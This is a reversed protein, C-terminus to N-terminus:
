GIALNEREARQAGAPYPVAFSEFPNRSQSARLGQRQASALEFDLCVVNAFGYAAFERMESDPLAYKMELVCSVSRKESHFIFEHSIAPGRPGCMKLVAVKLASLDPADRLTKLCHEWYRSRPVSSDEFYRTAM